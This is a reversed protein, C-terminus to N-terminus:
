KKILPKRDEQKVKAKDFTMYYLIIFGGITFLLQITEFNNYLIRSNEHWWPGFRRTGHEILMLLMFLAQVTLLSAFVNDQHTVAFNPNGKFPWVKSFILPRTWVAIILVVLLILMALYYAFGSISQIFPLFITDVIRIALLAMVLTITNVDPRRAMVYLMSGVFVLDFYLAQMPELTAAYQTYSDFGLYFLVVFVVIDVLKLAINM